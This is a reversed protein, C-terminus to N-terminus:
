LDVGYEKVVDDLSEGKGKPLSTLSSALREDEVDELREMLRAYEKMSLLVAEPESRNFVYKFGTKKVENLLEITNVRLDTVTSITDKTPLLMM